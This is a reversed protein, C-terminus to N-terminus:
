VRIGKKRLHKLPDRRVDYLKAETAKDTKIKDLRREAERMMNDRRETFAHKTTGIRDQKSRVITPCPMHFHECDDRGAFLWRRPDKAALAELKACECYDGLDCTREDV